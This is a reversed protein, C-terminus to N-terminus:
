FHFFSSNLFFKVQTRSPLAQAQLSMSRQMREKRRRVLPSLKPYQGLVGNCQGLQVMMMNLQAWFRFDQIELEKKLWTIMLDGVNGLHWHVLTLSSSVNWSRFGERGKIRLVLLIILYLLSKSTKKKKFFFINYYYKEIKFFNYCFNFSTSFNNYILLTKLTSQLLLKM